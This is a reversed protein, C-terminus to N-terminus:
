CSLNKLVKQCIKDIRRLADEVPMFYIKSIVKWVNYYDFIGYKVMKELIKARMELEDYIKRIDRGALGRRPAIKYELLYSNGIGRFEHKDKQPNWTFIDIYNYTGEAADYGIVEDVSIVRRDVRGTRPDVVMNQFVVVNLNDLYAPPIEIPKGSLRQILREMNAAHFTALVPHGTQMAQFAVYGERGRIEGVIIYDPRQRLAAKLLDYLDISSKEDEGHRTVESVWNPHPLVVEATEEISVIKATPRIFVTIANLTTTKGSATEGCIFISMKSELLMWLYAAIRADLTGFKILETISLPIKTHKRITFNSGKRSIDKGFVVNLRSGDPLTADVIPRRPRVPKGIRETLKIIFANLSEDDKFEVTSRLSHFVKHEVFIPGVGDCSIDEIYPDRIFAELVGLGVKERLFEYKLRAYTEADVIIKRSKKKNRGFLSWRRRSSNGGSKTNTPKDTVEVVEDLLKSLVEEKKKSKMEELIEEDVLSAIFEEVENLLYKKDPPLVPEIPHYIGQSYGSDKYVHIFIPDGVPYIYNYKKAYGMERTLKTVFKPPGLPSKSTWSVVYQVLHPNRVAFKKFEEGMQPCIFCSEMCATCPKYTCATVADAM